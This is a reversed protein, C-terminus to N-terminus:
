GSEEALMRGNEDYLRVTTTAEDVAWFELAVAREILDEPFIARAVEAFNAADSDLGALLRM